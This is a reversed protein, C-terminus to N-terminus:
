QQKLKTGVDTKRNELKKLNLMSPEGDPRTLWISRFREFMKKNQEFENIFQQM